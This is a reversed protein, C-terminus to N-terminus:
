DEFVNYRRDLRNMLWVYVLILVCFVLEAGQNAFWYGLPFGAISYRDLTDALLIGCLYSVSFWVALLIAIYSINRKWYCRLQEQRDM